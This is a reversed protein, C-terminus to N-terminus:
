QRSGPAEPRQGKCRDARATAIAEGAIMYLMASAIVCFLAATRVFESHGIGSFWCLLVIAVLAVWSCHPHHIRDSCWWLLGSLLVTVLLSGAVLAISEAAIAVMLM